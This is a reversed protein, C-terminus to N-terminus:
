ARRRKSYTAKKKRIVTPTTTKRKVSETVPKKSQEKKEKDVLDQDPEKIVELKKKRPRRKKTKIVNYEDVFGVICEDIPILGNSIAFAAEKKSVVYVVDGPGATYIGDAAVYPKGKPKLDENLGQVILLRLGDLGPDKVSAVVNGIVKGLKM